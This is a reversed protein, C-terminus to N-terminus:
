AQHRRHPANGRWWRQPGRDTGREKQSKVRKAMKTMEDQSIKMRQMMRKMMRKMKKEGERGIM